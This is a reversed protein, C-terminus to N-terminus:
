YVYGLLKGGVNKRRAEEHDLIGSSTTLIIIGFGRAPLLLNVWAEIQNVQVNYRPSIVGTKNLRGNLQIVIKGSRHDDVIEFEGIYGHRQMVSLFKVIVKSSPRVLVQRKGRREANVINNLCDNLVSVRVMTPLCPASFSLRSRSPLRSYTFLRREDSHRSDDLATQVLGHLFWLAYNVKPPTPLRSSAASPSYVQKGRRADVGGVNGAARAQPQTRYLKGEAVRCVGAWDWRKTWDLEGDDVDLELGGVDEEVAAM